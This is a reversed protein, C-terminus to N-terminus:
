RKPREKDTLNILRQRLSSAAPIPPLKDTDRPIEPKKEVDTRGDFIEFRKIGFKTLLYAIRPLIKKEKM